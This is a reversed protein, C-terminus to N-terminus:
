DRYLRTNHVYGIRNNATLIRTWEGSNDLIMVSSGSEIRGTVSGNPASRLNAYGDRDQVVWYRDDCASMDVLRTRSIAIKLSSNGLGGLIRSNDTTYASLFTTGNYARGVIANTNVTRLNSWGDPDQVKFCSATGATSPKPVIALLLLAIPFTLSKTLTM